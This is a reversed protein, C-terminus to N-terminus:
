FELTRFGAIIDILVVAVELSFQRTRSGTPEADGDVGNAHATPPRVDLAGAEFLHILGQLGIRGGERRAIARRELV